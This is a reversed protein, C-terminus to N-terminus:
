APFARLARLGSGSRDHSQPTARDGRGRRDGRGAHPGQGRLASAFAADGLAKRAATSVRETPVRDPEKAIAIAVAENPANGAGLLRAARESQGWAIAIIAAKTLADKIFGPNRHETALTLAERYDGQEMAVEGLADLSLYAGLTFNVERRLALAKLHHELALAYQGRGNAAMGLTAHVMSAVFAALRPDDLTRSLALAENHM